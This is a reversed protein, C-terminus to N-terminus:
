SNILHSSNGLFTRYELQTTPRGVVLKCLRGASFNQKMRRLQKVVDEVTKHSSSAVNLGGIILLVDGDQLDAHHLQGTAAPPGNLTVFGAASDVLSIGLEQTPDFQFEHIEQPWDPHAKHYKDEQPILNQASAFPNMSIRGSLPRGTTWSVVKSNDDTGSSAASPSKQAESPAASDHAGASDSSGMVAHGGKKRFMLSSLRRIRSARKKKKTKTTTKSAPSVIGSAGAPPPPMIGPLDQRGSLAAPISEGAAAQGQTADQSPTPGHNVQSKRRIKELRSARSNKGSSPSSATAAPGAITNIRPSARPPAIRAGALQELIWAPPPAGFDSTAVPRPGDPEPAHDPPATVAAAAAETDSEAPSAATINTSSGRLDLSKRAFALLQESHNASDDSPRAATSYPAEGPSGMAAAVPNETNQAKEGGIFSYWEGSAM